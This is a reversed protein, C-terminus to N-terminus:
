LRAEFRVAKAHEPFAYQLDCGEYVKVSTQECDFAIVRTEIKATGPVGGELKARKVAGALTDAKGWAGKSGIIALFTKADTVM